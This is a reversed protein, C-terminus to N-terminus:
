GRGRVPSIYLAHPSAESRTGTTTPAEQSSPCRFQSAFHVCGFTFVQAVQYRETNSVHQVLAAFHQFAKCLPLYTDVSPLYRPQLLSICIKRMLLM